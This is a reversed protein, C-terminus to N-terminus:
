EIKQEELLEKVAFRLYIEPQAIAEEKSAARSLLDYVLFDPNSNNSNFGNEGVICYLPKKHDVCLEKLSGIVKGELSSKDFKGEGSIVIDAKKIENEIDLVKSIFSFGNVLEANFLAAMGGAIGGAAGSGEIKQVDTGIYKKIFEAFHKLGRDLDEIEKEVAGKQPGYIYAAGNEGYFPNKVDCLITFKIDKFTKESEISNINILSAGIADLNQGNRNYFKCGLASAIGIGGDNTCSGGLFLFIEEAGKKIADLILEGTGYTSRLSPNFENESLLAIGSAIAMEIYAKSDKLLYHAERVRMMPDFVSLIVREAELIAELTDLSGDGGDAIAIKSYTIDPNHEHIEEGIIDAIRSSSLSGKFKDPIILVHM